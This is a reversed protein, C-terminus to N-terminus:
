PAFYIPCWRRFGKKFVGVAILHNKIFREAQSKNVGFKSCLDSTTVGRPSNKIFSLANDFMLRGADNRTKYGMKALAEPSNSKGKRVESRRRFVEPQKNTAKATASKRESVGPANQAAIMKEKYGPRAWFKKSRDSLTQRYKADRVDDMCSIFNGGDGGLTLNYGKERNTSDYLAIFFIEKENLENEEFQGLSEIKFSERGYKAISKKLYENDNARFHKGLRYQLSKMTKGIYYKGNAINTIKYIHGTM